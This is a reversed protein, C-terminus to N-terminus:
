VNKTIKSKTSELLGNKQQGSKIYKKLKLVMWNCKNGKGIYTTKSYKM